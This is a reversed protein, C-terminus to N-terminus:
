NQPLARIRDGDRLSTQGELVVVEGVELGEVIEARNLSLFGPQVDRREVRDGNVVFVTRGILARRPVVVTDTRTDKVLYAEGTLGPVLLDDAAPVDLFATRTKQSSDAFAALSTVTGTFTRHPYSALRITAEQGVAVGAFDEESLTLTVYRGPAILRVLQSGRNLQDGPFAYIEAIEGAFPARTVRQHSEFELRAVEARLFDVSETEGIEARQLSAAAREQQRTVDALQVASSQQLEVALRVAEEEASLRDLDFALPHPTAQRAEAATLRIRAQELRLDLDRAEQSALVDDEAVQDGVKVPREILLGNAETKIRLDLYAFVEATGTVAQVIGGRAASAVPAETVLARQSLWWGVTLLLLVIFIRLFWKM